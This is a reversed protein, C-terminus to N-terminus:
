CIKKARCNRADVAKPEAWPAFQPLSCLREFENSNSSIPEIGDTLERWAEELHVYQQVENSDQIWAHVQQGVVLCESSIRHCFGTQTAGVVLFRVQRFGLNIKADM